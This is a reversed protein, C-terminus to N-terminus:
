SQIVSHSFSWTVLNVTSTMTYNSVPLFDLLVEYHKGYRNQSPYITLHSPSFSLVVSERHNNQEEQRLLVSM